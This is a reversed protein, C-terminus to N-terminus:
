LRVTVRRVAAQGEGDLEIFQLVLEDDATEDDGDAALFRERETATLLKAKFALLDEHCELSFSSPLAGDSVRVLFEFRTPTLPLRIPGPDDGRSLRVELVMGGTDNAVLEVKQGGKRPVSIMEDLLPSTKSQSYSGSTALVLDDHTQLLMGTFIRNLGRVQVPLVNRPLTKKAALLDAVQLFLGGSRFITLDWLSLAEARDDPLTFFVRQRQVRLMKLFEDRADTDAGELYDQQGRRYSSTGGYIPDNLVLEGYAAALAPDDAGYVLVNDVRRSAESGIGFANLKRFLDIKETRRAPLNEGFINRFVSARDFTGKIALEPVDACTMLGDRCDPHGLILNAALMLLQRVPFHVGNQESLMILARLRRHLLDGDALGRIRDRNEQIPCKGAGAAQCGECQAWDPHNTMAEIVRGIMDAAPAQSMDRLSLRVGPAVADGVLTAEVAQTMAITAASKPTAKLKELLQGHNAAVLFLTTADSSTVCEAMRTLLPASVEAALESLDKIVILERGDFSVTKVTSKGNWETESGGCALWVSRCCYTKGDGATGTLIESVPDASKLNALIEDRFQVPLTIPAIRERLLTRQIVEDFLNDNTPIPGYNRLFRVFRNTQFISM